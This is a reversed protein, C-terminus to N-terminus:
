GDISSSDDSNDDSDDGKESGANIEDSGSGDSEDSSADSESPPYENGAAVIEDDDNYICYGDDADSLWSGYVTCPFGPLLAQAAEEIQNPVPTHVFFTEANVDDSTVLRSPPAHMRLLHKTLPMGHGRFNRPADDLDELPAMACYMLRRCAPTLILGILKVTGTWVREFIDHDLKSIGASLSLELIIKDRVESDILSNAIAADVDTPTQFLLPHGFDECAKEDQWQLDALCVVPYFMDGRAREQLARTDFARKLYKTVSISVIELITYLTDGRIEFRHERREVGSLPDHYNRAIIAQIIESWKQCPFNGQFVELFPIESISDLSRKFLIKRLNHCIMRHMRISDFRPDMPFDHGLPLFSWHADHALFERFHRNTLELALPGTVDLFGLIRRLVNADFDLVSPRTQPDM